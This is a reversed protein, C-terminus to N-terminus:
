HLPFRLFWWAALDLCQGPQLACEGAAAAGGVAGFVTSIEAKLQTRNLPEGTAPDVM